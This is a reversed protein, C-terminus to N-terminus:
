YSIVGATPTSTCTPLLVLLLVGLMHYHGCGQPHHSDGEGQGLQLWGCCATPQQNPHHSPSPNHAIARSSGSPNQYPMFRERIRPLHGPPLTHLALCDKSFFRAKPLLLTPM